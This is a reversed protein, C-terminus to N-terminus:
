RHNGRNERHSIERCIQLIRSSYNLIFVNQGQVCLMEHTKAFNGFEKCKGQCSKLIQQQQLKGQKGQATPVRNSSALAAAFPGPQHPHCHAPRSCTTLLGHRATLQERSAPLLPRTSLTLGARRISLTVGTVALDYSRCELYCM